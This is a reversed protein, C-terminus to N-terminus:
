RKDGWKKDLDFMGDADKGPRVDNMRPGFDRTAQSHHDGLIWAIRWLPIAILLGIAALVGVKWGDSKQEEGGYM